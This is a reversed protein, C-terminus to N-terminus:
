AAMLEVVNGGPDHFYLADAGIWEFRLVVEGDEFPLVDVREKFGLM